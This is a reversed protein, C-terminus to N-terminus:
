VKEETKIMSVTAMEASPAADNTTSTASAAALPSALAVSQRTRCAVLVGGAVAAVFALAALVIVAVAWDAM